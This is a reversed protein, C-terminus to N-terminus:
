HFHHGGGMLHKIIVFAVLLATTIIGSNRLWRPVTTQNNVDSFFIRQNNSWPTIGQPKFVSLTIAVLLVVMAAIADIVLQLRTTHFSSATLSMNTAANAMRTAVQMHMLLLASAVVTILLKVVIWYHRFLGWPTGLSQILGTLLSAFSFPVIVYWGVFEIALYTAQLWHDNKSTLGAIALALFAAVAGFWGVSSTVHAILAVKSIRPTMTFM